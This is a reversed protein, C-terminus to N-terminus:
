KSANSKSGGQNAEHRLGQKNALLNAYDIKIQLVHPLAMGILDLTQQVIDSLM